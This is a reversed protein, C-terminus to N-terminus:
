EVSGGEFVLRVNRALWPVWGPDRDLGGRRVALDICEMPLAITMTEPGLRVRGPITLFQAVFDAVSEPVPRGARKRLSQGSPSAFAQAHVPM